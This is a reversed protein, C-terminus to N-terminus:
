PATNKVILEELLSKDRITDMPRWFEHHKYTHLEGEKALNELPSKEFITNDNEIYNLVEPECIFFGGNIWSGDGKPKELFSVVKNNNDIELSGWRGDRQVATMTIAKGHKKHTKVLEPINIDGVGDGYTLMFPENGIYDKARKIRGGTMSNVGTDIM